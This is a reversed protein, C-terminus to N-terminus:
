GKVNEDKIPDGKSTGIARLLVKNLATIKHDSDIKLGFVDRIYFVDVVREGYTSIHASTVQLGFDTLARTVDHLFGQRNRGNVEVVTASQSADNNVLVRPAVEFVRTRSPMQRSREDALEREPRIRGTLAGEIREEMRQIKDPDKISADEVDQVWFTDLAMGNGLTAINANVISGGSLSIAGAINAFLGPHDLTHVLVETVDIDERVRTKIVLHTASKDADRVIEAHYALDQPTYALFYNAHGQELFWDVDDSPWHDLHEILKKRVNDARAERRPVPLGGIMTEQVRYYLERLLSAKWNNWVNPGVARTDAVTLILLLRLREPSQVLKVFDRITKPDDLDRKYACRNMDLHHLVLWAVTETEWANLGLRPCLSKAIKAGEVSHDGGRGKAIDHLLVAVYLVERSQVDKIVETSLPHDDALLGREIRSLIDIARITHEDVTYVHYMDYQMQAVVRGFDPIFRGFVGAENMRVLAQKPGKKATLMDLFLKNAQSDHRVAKKLYKLSRAALRLAEPHIDLDYKEAEYFLRLLNVADDKFVEEHEITIRGGDVKFGPIKTRRFNFSPLSSLISKKTHEEELVACIIRTLDGVEKATLFYHKMFREVASVGERDSYDMRAALENQVNFSITEDPRGALYHLHCRVTWLFKQAKNFRRADVKDLVGKEVLGQVTDVRYLFKAIWMLTQLDRLGGKGDKINPELVYRTDGMKNHREDREDLKSKVFDAGGGSVVDKEFRREFEEFLVHDGSIWRSELLSTTITIDSKAMKVTEDVSRTAHGVKLGLDWLMYLMWEIAENAQPHPKKPLLFMLDLDSQPSIEARGYGGTTVLCIETDSLDFVQAITFEHLTRILQDLLYAGGRLTAVGSAEGSEFRRQIETQGNELATKFQKLVKARGKPKKVDGSTESIDCLATMFTKRCIVGRPKKIKLLM